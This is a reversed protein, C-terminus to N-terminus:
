AYNLARAPAVAVPQGALAATYVAEVERGVQAWDYRRVALRGQAVLRAHLAGNHLVRHLAQALAEPDHSLVLAGTEESTLVTRYGPIDSAVVAAGAALAELLVIGQSEGGLSPACFVDASAFYLPKENETIAGVFRVNPDDGALKKCTALEPGEGAIVIRPLPDGATLALQRLRPLAALLVAAGKRPELRGLFLITPQPSSQTRRVVQFQAVEIGNPIIQYEAPFVDAITARAVETVAIRGALAAFAPRLLPRAQRYMWAASPSAAAHFTGVCPIDLGRAVLALALTLPAVLPEHLHLLDYREGAVVRYVPHERLSPLGPRAVSGNIALPAVNGIVRVGAEAVPQSAATLIHATHGHGRLHAALATIHNRVGGPYSWDYPSVLAIKM